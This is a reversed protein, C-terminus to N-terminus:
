PWAGEAIRFNKLSWIGPFGYQMNQLVEVHESFLFIGKVIGAPVMKKVSGCLKSIIDSAFM